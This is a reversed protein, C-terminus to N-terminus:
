WVLGQRPNMPNRAEIQQILDLSEQDMNEPLKIQIEVYLDGQTGDKSKVGRGKIRLRSGSSSGAPIKMTVKDTPTPIDIKAGMAAEALTVPLKVELNAGQRKFFPHAAVSLQVILDGAEGGASRTPGGQGKLRIKQGDEVGPPVKIAISERKGGRDVSIEANGGLIAINFPITLEVSLDEGRVPQQRGASRRGRGGGFISEFGGGGGGFPGGGGFLQEIDIGELPNAGGRAGWPNAGGAAAQEYSSGFQDYMKRKSEDGLVDYAKQIEQFRKTANKDDQNLDPHHKRALSRYAKQIEAATATRSVGLIKYYDEAMSQTAKM